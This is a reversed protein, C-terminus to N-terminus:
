DCKRCLEAPGDLLKLSAIIGIGCFFFFLKLFRYQSISFEEVIVESCAIYLFTGAAMSAFILEVMDSGTNLIIGLTVGVPTFIGFLCIMGVVFNPEDPFTKAMSIGLSMGAAGKHMLIAAVFMLLDKYTDCMGLALGEFIAHTGLGILLIFPTMNELCTPKKAAMIKQVAQHSEARTRTLTKHAKDVFLHDTESEKKSLVPAKKDFDVENRVGIIGEEEMNEVMVDMKGEPHNHEHEKEGDSDDDPVTVM